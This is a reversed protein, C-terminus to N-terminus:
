SKGLLEELVDALCEVPKSESFRKLIILEGSKTVATLDYCPHLSHGHTMELRERSAFAWVDTLDFRRDPLVHLPRYSLRLEGGRITLDSRNLPVELLPFFLLVLFFAFIWDAHPILHTFAVTLAMPLLTVCFFGVWGIHGFRTFIGGKVSITTGAISRRFAFGHRQLRAEISQHSEESPM